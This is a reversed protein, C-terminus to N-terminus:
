NKLMEVKSREFSNILFIRSKFSDQFVKTISLLSSTDIVQGDQGVSRFVLTNMQQLQETAELLSVLALVFLICIAVM